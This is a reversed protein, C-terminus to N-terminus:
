RGRLGRDSEAGVATAVGPALAYMCNRPAGVVPWVKNGTHGGLQAFCQVFLNRLTILILRDDKVSQVEEASNTNVIVDDHNDLGVNQCSTWRAAFDDM